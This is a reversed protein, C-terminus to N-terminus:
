LNFFFVPAMSALGAGAQLALVGLAQRPSRPLWRIAFLLVIPMQGAMLLQWLHAATGEDAQRIGGYVSVNVLVLCLAILSMSLPLFACPQKTVTVFAPAHQDPEQNRTPFLHERLASCIVNASTLLDNHGSRLFTEFEKGYRARWLRPYLCVLLHALVQNM